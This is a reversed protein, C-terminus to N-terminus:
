SSTAESSEEADHESESHAENESEDDESGKSRKRDAEDLRDSVRVRRDKVTDILGM